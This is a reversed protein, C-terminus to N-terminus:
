LILPSTSLRLQAVDWFSRTRLPSSERDRNDEERDLLDTMRYREIVVRKDIRPHPGDLDQM